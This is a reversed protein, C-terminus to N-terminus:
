EAFANLTIAMSDDYYTDFFNKPANKIAGTKTFDIDFVDTDDGNNELFYVKVDEKKLEGKVIALRIKNLFYESHTEIVYNKDTNNINNVIYDGFKSQISPHLHIEPEALFLTSNDPLQLDAVVIPLFQSVGFGVNSLAALVNSNTPKVLVEIISGGLRNTKIDEILDIEKMIKVLESIKKNSRKQWEIIQDICGQGDIGVKYNAKNQELYTSQPPQRFAGIFNIFDRGYTFLQFADDENYKKNNINIIKSKLLKPLFSNKDRQWKTAILIPKTTRFDLETIKLNIMITNDSEHNNSISDFDGLSVYNGNTSLEFPFNETQIAMLIGSIVSSKGSSNAGTLITLRSFDFTKETKFCKFNELTLQEIKM